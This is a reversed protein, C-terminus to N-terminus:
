PGSGAPQPPGILRRVVSLLTEAKFPKALVAATGPPQGDLRYGSMVIVPVEAIRPDATKARLFAEGNAPHPIAYDMVVLGVSMSALTALASVADFATCVCYGDDALVTSLTERLDADDDLVLVFPM